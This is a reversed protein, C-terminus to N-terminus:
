GLVSRLEEATIGGPRLITPTHATLDLVTSEVGVRTPGGDLIVDVKCGLDKMVHRATTPSPKGAPNASPAAIPTGSETIIALTVKHDPMRIAVTELGGTTIHPVIGSKELVLTLPGPWFLDMLERAKIPVDRTLKYLERKDAIHVIVPNDAPRNKVRFIKAVAEPNLADAGLGYVTETPFAVLGGNRIVGAAIRIKDIEPREIDVEVIMPKGTSEKSM